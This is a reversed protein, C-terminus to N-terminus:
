YWRSKSRVWAQAGSNGRVCLWVGEDVPQLASKEVEIKATNGQTTEVELVCPANAQALQADAIKYIGGRRLQYKMKAKDEVLVDKRAVVATPKALDVDDVVKLAENVTFGQVQAVNLGPQEYFVDGTRVTYTKQKVAFLNISIAFGLFVCLATLICMTWKNQM